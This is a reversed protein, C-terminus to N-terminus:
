PLNRCRWPTAQGEIFLLHQDSRLEEFTQRLGSPWIVEIEDIRDVRGTGFSLVAENKSMYGDGTQVTQWREVGGFRTAVRAGIADRGPRTGVLSVRIRHNKSITQNALLAAPEKLDSGVLDVRGDLNFDCKAMGRGFHVTKWYDSEGLDTLSEFAGASLRLVQTPMAFAKGKATLDEVHGNGVVLDVQGDNGLDVAQVGFGLMSQSLRDLNYRVAEDSFQGSESQMYQNSWEGEFNCIHLDTRGNGDFDAVAVGMCAMPKGTAGFALGRTVAEDIWKQDPQHFRWWQNPYLDNAVFIDNVGDGDLDTVVLGLGARVQDSGPEGLSEIELSGSPTTVLLRDPAPTFHLPGPLVFKGDDDTEIPAFAAEDDVYNVEIIDALGDGTVDGIAASSTFSHPGSLSALKADRFTGDGQNILLQNQGLNCVLLDEFGDQNWDGASVGTTYGRSDSLSRDVVERFYGDHNRYLANAHKSREFPPDTGAQAFYLDPQGNRDFDMVAVGGGFAEFIRFTRDVPPDANRYRFGVGVQESVHALRVRASDHDISERKESSPTISETSRDLGILWESLTGADEIELGCILAAVNWGRDDETLVSRKFGQVQQRTERNPNMKAILHEQWAISELPRGVAMIKESVDLFDQKRLTSRTRARKIDSRISDLLAIREGFLAAEDSRGALTLALVMGRHAEVSGPEALIANYFCRIAAGDQERNALRGAAIWFNAFRQAEPPAAALCSRLQDDQQAASLIRAKLAVGAPEFVEEC